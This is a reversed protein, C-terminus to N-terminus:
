SSLRLYKSTSIWPGEPEGYSPASTALQIRRQNYVSQDSDCSCTSDELELEEECIVVWHHGGLDPEEGLDVVRVDVLESADAEVHQLTLMRKMCHHCTVDM